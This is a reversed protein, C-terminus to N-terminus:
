SVEFGMDSMFGVIKNYLDGEETVPFWSVVLCDESWGTMEHARTAIENNKITSDFILLRKDEKLPLGDCAFKTEVYFGHIKAFNNAPISEVGIFPIDIVVPSSIGGLNNKPEVRQLRCTGIIHSKNDPPIIPRQPSNLGFYVLDIPTKHLPKLNEDLAIVNAELYYENILRSQDPRVEIGLEIYPQEEDDGLYVSIPKINATIDVSRENSLYLSRVIPMPIPVSNTGIRQFYERMIKKEKECSKVPSVRYPIVNGKPIYLLVFEKSDADACTKFDIGALQPEIMDRINKDLWNELGSTKNIVHLSSDIGLAIIGSDTNAFASMEKAIRLKFDGIESPKATLLDIDIEKNEIHPNEGDATNGSRLIWDELNNVDKFVARTEM